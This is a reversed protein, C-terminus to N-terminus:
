AESGAGGSEDLRGEYKEVTVGLAEGADIDAADALALLAFLADGVEDVAISADDPKTGYETSVLVEKALEGVESELDLVRHPLPCDLDHCEIFTAVLEQEDM